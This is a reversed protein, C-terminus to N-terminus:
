VADLSSTMVLVLVAGSRDLGCAPGAHIIMARAHALWNM